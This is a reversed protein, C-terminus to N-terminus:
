VERDRAPCGTRGADSAPSFVSRRRPSGAGRHAGAGEDRALGPLPRAAGRDREGLRKLEEADVLLVTRHFIPAGRAVGRSERDITRWRGGPREDAAQDRFAKILLEKASRVEPSTTRSASASRLRTRRRRWLGAGTGDGRAPADEVFGYKALMRLHYSAASPTIGVVEAVETATGPGELGASEPDRAPRPAGARADGQPRHPRGERTMPLLYGMWIQLIAKM